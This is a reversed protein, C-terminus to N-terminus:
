NNKDLEKIAKKYESFSCNCTNQPGNPVNLNLACDGYHSIVLKKATEVVKELKENQKALINKKEIEATVLKYQETYLLYFHKNEKKLEEVKKLSEKTINILRTEAALPLVEFTLYTNHINVIWEIFEDDTMTKDGVVMVKGNELKLEM